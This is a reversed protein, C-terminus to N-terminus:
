ELPASPVSGAGSHQGTAGRVLVHTHGAHGTCLTAQFTWLYVCSMHASLDCGGAQRGGSQQRRSLWPRSPGARRAGVPLPLRTAAPAGPPLAPPLSGVAAERFTGLLRVSSCVCPWPSSPPLQPCCSPPVCDRHLSLLQRGRGLSLSVPESAVSGPPLLTPVGGGPGGGVKYEGKSNM